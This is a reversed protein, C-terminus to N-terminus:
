LSLKLSITMEGTKIMVDTAQIFPAIKGPYFALDFQRELSKATSEPMAYGNFSLSDILFRIANVPKNEAVYRGKLSIAIGDATGGAAIAGDEFLFSFGHLANSKAQMFRNLEGDGIVITPNLGRMSVMKGNQGILEPLKTMVEALAAFYSRFLPLGREEWKLRIDALETELRSRDPRDALLRDVEQQAETRKAKEAEYANRTDALLRRGEELEAAAQRYATYQEQYDSIFKRDRSLIFQLQEWVYLADRLSSARLVTLWISHREGTYYSRIVSGTQNKKEELRRSTQEALRGTVELTEILKHEEDTLREIERDLEYVTLGKGLLLSDASVSPEALAFGNGCFLLSCALGIAAMRRIINPM